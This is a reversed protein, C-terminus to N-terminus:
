VEGQRRVVHEAERTTSAPASALRRRRARARKTRPSPAWHRSWMPGLKAAQTMCWALLLCHTSVPSGRMRGIAPRHFAFPEGCRWQWARVHEWTLPRGYPGRFGYHTFWAVIADQGVVPRDVRPCLSRLRALITRYNPRELERQRQQRKRNRALERLQALRAESLPKKPNRIRVSQGM